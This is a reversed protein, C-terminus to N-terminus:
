RVVKGCKSCVRFPGFRDYNPYSELEAGCEPCKLKIKFWKELEQNICKGQRPPSGMLIRKVM